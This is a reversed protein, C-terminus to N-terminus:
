SKFNVEFNLINTGGLSVAVLPSLSAAQNISFSSSDSLGFTVFQLALFVVLAAILGTKAKSFFVSVFMSLAILSCCFLFYWVLVLGFTSFKFVLGNLIAVYIISIIAYIVLYFIIWSLYFASTTLGMMKMGEKIKKEKEAILNNSMRLYPFLLPYAIFFVLSGRLNTTLSDQNYQPVTFSTIFANISASISNTSDQLILNDM